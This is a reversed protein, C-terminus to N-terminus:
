TKKKNKEPRLAKEHIFEYKFELNRFDHIFRRVSKLLNRALKLRILIGGPAQNKDATRKNQTIQSRIFFLKEIINIFREKGFGPIRTVDTQVM